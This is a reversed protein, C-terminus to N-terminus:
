PAFQDNEVVRWKYYSELSDASPNTAYDPITANPDIYREITTSGRYEGVVAGKSEDWQAPDTSANKLAQVTYYVTFTNSKTTVRSYINTYPRERVNDGVLSFDGAPGTKSWAAKFSSADSYGQPVLYMECIQSASRFIDNNTFKADFQALTADLNMSVRANGAMGVGAGGGAGGLGANQRYTHSNSGSIKAIKESSLVARIAADRKIYTFPQIQYNLNVKGATSFPESIAYPEAVPMWFLDLFLHDPLRSYPPGSSPLGAGFHTDSPRFLLTRWSIPKGGPYVGTPLSGFMAPSPVQRNPSFFSKSSDTGAVANLKQSVSFYPLQNETGGKVIDPPFVLGEDAKNIWPGDAGLGLGNDWDGDASVGATLTPPVTPYVFPAAYNGLSPAPWPQGPRLFDTQAFGPALVGMKYDAHLNVPSGEGYILGYAYNFKGWLPHATFAKEPVDGIALMRADSYDDNPDASLVMSQAVDETPLFDRNPFHVNASAFWRDSNIDTTIGISGAYKPDGAKTNPDPLDPGPNPNDQKNDSPHLTAVTPVPLTTSAPLTVTYRQIRHKNGVGDQKADAADYLSITIPKASTFIMTGTGSSKDISIPLISGYTQSNVNPAGMGLLRKPNTFAGSSYLSTFPMSSWTNVTLGGGTLHGSALASANPPMKLPHGNLQLGDLGEIEIWCYPFIRAGNDTAGQSTYGIQMQAPIIFQLLLFAQVAMTDDPPVALTKIVPDMTIQGDGPTWLHDVTTLLAGNKVYNPHLYIPNGASGTLGSLRGRGVAAFQIGVETVRPYIGFGQTNWTPHLTPAVQFRGLQSTASGDWARQYQNVFEGGSTATQSSDAINITRIYDFMETLIQRKNSLPTYKNELTAASSSSFGPMPKSSQDDLYDLLKTNREIGIDATSDKCNKRTFYYYNTTSGQISACFSLLKDIASRTVRLGTNLDWVPWMSVRPKGLLNLEPARSHATLFFRAAEVRRRDAAAATNLVSNTRGNPQFLMESVSSYLRKIPVLPVSSAGNVKKTGGESGGFAYLPTAGYNTITGTSTVTNYFKDPPLNWGLGRLISNLAVTGPHGPYRQIEGAAPQRTALNTEDPASFYPPSWFTADAIDAPNKPDGSSSATAGATNINVKCSEDDTWFAVRGVIPNTRTAGAVSVIKDGAGVPPVIQGDRLVYLWKVPMPAPQTTTAGPAGSISLGDMSLNQSPNSPDRPDLIPYSREGTRDLAPANVDVWLAPSNAWNAQPIDSALDAAAAATLADASYLRYITDLDGNSNFTRVAGPQSAWSFTSGKSTAENIQGQVVNIAIDALQRTQATASYSASAVRGSAARQLFAVILVTLLVIISLVIVLAVGRPRRSRFIRRNM